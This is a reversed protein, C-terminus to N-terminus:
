FLQKRSFSILCTRTHQSTPDVTLTDTKPDVHIDYDERQHITKEKKGEMPFGTPQNNFTTANHVKQTRSRNNYRQTSPIKVPTGRYPLERNEAPIM